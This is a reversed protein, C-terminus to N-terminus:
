GSHLWICQTDNYVTIIEFCGDKIHSSQNKKSKEKDGYHWVHWKSITM